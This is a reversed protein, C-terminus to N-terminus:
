IEYGEITFKTDEVYWEFASQKEDEEISEVIDYFDSRKNDLTNRVIDVVFYEFSGVDFVKSLEEYYYFTKLDATSWHNCDNYTIEAGEEEEAEKLVRKFEEFDEITKLYEVVEKENKNEEIYNVIDSLAITGVAKVGDGQCYDLRWEEANLNKFMPHINKIEDNICESAFDVNFWDNSYNKFYREKVKEQVEESLEDYDFATQEEIDEVEINDIITRIDECIEEHKVYYLVNRKFTDFGDSLTEALCHEYVISDIKWSPLDNFEDDILSGYVPTAGDAEEFAIEYLEAELEEITDCKDKLYEFHYEFDLISLRSLEERDISIVEFENEFLVLKNNM